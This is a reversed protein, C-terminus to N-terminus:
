GSDQVVTRVADLVFPNATTGPHDVHKTFVEDGDVFFHLVSANVPDIGHAVTGDHVYSLLDGREKSGVMLRPDEGGIVILVLADKLHPGQWGDTEEGVPCDAIAQGLIREGLHRWGPMDGVVGNVVGRPAAVFRSAM